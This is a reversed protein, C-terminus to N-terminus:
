AAVDVYTATLESPEPIPEGAERLGELHFTIADRMEREVEDHTAGTAVCGPLDPAYASFNEGQAGEIVILYRRETL